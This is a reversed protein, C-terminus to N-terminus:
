LKINEQHKIKVNQDRKGMHLLLLKHVLIKTKLNCFGYPVLMKSLPGCGSTFKQYDHFQLTFLVEWFKFISIKKKM